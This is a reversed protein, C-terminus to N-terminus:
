GRRRGEEKGSVNGRERGPQWENRGDVEGRGFDFSSDQDRIKDNTLGLYQFNVVGLQSDIVKGDQIM